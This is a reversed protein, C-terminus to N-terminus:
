AGDWPPLLSAAGHSDLYTQLIISAAVADREAKAKKGRKGAARMQLDAERSTFREDWLVVEITGTARLQAAFRESLRAQPGITGDLSYPLGVVIRQVDERGALEILTAIDGAGRRQYTRVPVAIRGHPDSIAIGIRKDGVDLGLTRM